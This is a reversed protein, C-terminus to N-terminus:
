LQFTAKFAGSSALSVYEDGAVIMHDIICINVAKLTLMLDNTSDIDERSPLALGGPHNQALIIGATSPYKLVIEILRRCNVVVETLEGECVTECTILKGSADLCLVVVRENNIGSYYDCLYKGCENSNKLRVGSTKQKKYEHFFPVLLKILSVSNQTIGDVMLLQDESADLVGAISGFRDILRHAIPNTDKRPISYFLLLELMEHDHMGKFGARKFRERMRNRHGDHLNKVQSKEKQNQKEIKQSVTIVREFMKYSIEYMIITSRQFQVKLAIEVGFRQNPLM